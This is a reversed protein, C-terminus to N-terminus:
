FPFAIPRQRVNETRGCRRCELYRDPPQVEGNRRVVFHHINLRCRLSKRMIPAGSSEVGVHTTALRLEWAHALVGLAHRLQESRGVDHLEALFELMYRQRVSAPLMVVAAGLALRSARTPHTRRRERLSAPTDRTAAGASRLTSM